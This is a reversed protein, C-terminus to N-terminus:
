RKSRPRPRAPRARAAKALQVAHANALLRALRKADIADLRILVAPFGAYHPETFFVDPDGALLADKEDLDAVRVVLVKPNSVRPKKPDIREQWPWAFQTPKGKVDVFFRGPEDGEIAGALKMAIRKVDRQTAMM